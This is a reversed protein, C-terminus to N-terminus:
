ILFFQVGVKISPFNILKNDGIRILISFFFSCIGELRQLDQSPRAYLKILLGFLIVAVLLTGMMAPNVIVIVVFIGGLDTVNELALFMTSPMREDIIGMDKSFRNIIRGTQNMNFFHIPAQMVSGFLKDHLVTSSRM